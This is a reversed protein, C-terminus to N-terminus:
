VATKIKQEEAEQKEGITLDSNQPENLASVKIEDFSSMKNKFLYIVRTIFIAELPIM